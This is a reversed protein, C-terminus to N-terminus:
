SDIRAASWRDIGESAAWSNLIALREASPSGPEASYSSLTLGPEAVLTMAEYHLELDGVLPHRIRKGGTGHRSVDHAAWRVRFEDSRTVLEGVLNTLAKDYPNRGAESRLLSVFQDATREWDLWFEEGRRSLFAYRAANVPGNTEFMEAYLARGIPNM